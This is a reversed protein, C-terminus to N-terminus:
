TSAHTAAAEPRWRSQLEEAFRDAFRDLAAWDTFEYDRSTDTPGGSRQAIFKMLIRKLVGYHTYLLAGAIPKTHTPRYGTDRFFRELIDQVDAMAKARAQPSANADEATTETLSVSLFATPVGALAIRHRRVFDVMESEHKGAHVSAALILGDFPRLDFPERVSRVDVLESAHGHLVLREALHQGIKHTHGDRTAYLIALTSMPRRRRLIRAYTDIAAAPVFTISSCAGRM